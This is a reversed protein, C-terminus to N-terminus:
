LFAALGLSKAPSPDVGDCCNWIGSPGIVPATRPLGSNLRPSRLWVWKYVTLHNAKPWLTFEPKYITKVHRWPPWIQTCFLSDAAMNTCLVIFRRGHKHVFLFGTPTSSKECTLVKKQELCNAFSSVVHSLFSRYTVLTQTVGLFTM